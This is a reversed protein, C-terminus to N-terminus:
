IIKIERQPVVHPVNHTHTHTHTHTQSLSLSLSLARSLSLFYPLSHSHSYRLRESGSTGLAANGPWPGLVDGNGQVGPQQWTKNRMQETKRETGLSGLLGM